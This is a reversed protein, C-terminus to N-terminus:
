QSRIGPPGSARPAPPDFGGAERTGAPPTSVGTEDPHSADPEVFDVPARDDRHEVPETRHSAVTLEVGETVSPTVPVSRDADEGATPTVRLYGSVVVTSPFWASRRLQCRAECEGLAVVAPGVAYQGVFQRLVALREPEAAM